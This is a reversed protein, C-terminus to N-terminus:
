SGWQYNVSASAAVEIVKVAAGAVPVLIPPDGATLLFGVTATPTTGDLTFKVNQTECQLIILGAGSPKTLTVASSLAANRTHSGEPQFREPRYAM